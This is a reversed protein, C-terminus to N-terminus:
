AYNLLMHIDFIGKWMRQECTFANIKSGKENVINTQPFSQCKPVFGIWAIYWIATCPITLLYMYSSVAQKM